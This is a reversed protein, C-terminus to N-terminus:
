TGCSIATFMLSYADKDLELASNPISREGLITSVTHIDTETIDDDEDTVSDNYVAYGHKGNKKVTYLAKDALKILAGYDSGQKPVFVAGISAGLPIDMDDGMLRKADAQIQLNVNQALERVKEESTLGKCFASFEDGGMRACKSGLPVNESIIHACSILVQDGMEHGYIDNVLKFSDLDIMMLCGTETKCLDPFLSQAAGKNLFGTLKDTTAEAKFSLMKEQKSLTNNIRRLLVDPDFPKRVFDSVGAEFGRTETSSDEDATLFIVPVEENGTEQEYRRLMELTEFGDPKPMMIDLLILDPSGKKKIYDILANGSKMATVRFNNKSLIHGAMNLNATDDDVVIIWAAM